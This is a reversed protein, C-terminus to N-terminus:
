NHGSLRRLDTHVIFYHIRQVGHSSCQGSELAFDRKDNSRYPSLDGMWGVHGGGRRRACSDVRCRM